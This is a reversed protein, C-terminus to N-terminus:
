GCDSRMGDGLGKVDGGARKRKTIIGLRSYDGSVASLKEERRGGVFGERCWVDNGRGHGAIMVAHRLIM